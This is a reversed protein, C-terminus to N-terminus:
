WSLAYESFHSLLGVVKKAFVDDVSPVYAVIGLSGDTYAIQKPLAYDSLVCNAYSMTLQATKRFVLGEPRFLVRNVTDAPAVATIAVWELLAGAPISLVHNSVRVEGGPPGVTVTVSDYALPTCQLLSTTSWKSSSAQLPTVRADPAMPGADACGLALVAASISLASCLVRALKM